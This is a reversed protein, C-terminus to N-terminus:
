EEEKAAERISNLIFLFNRPATIKGHLNVQSLTKLEQGTVDHRALMQRNSVFGHWVRDRSKAPSTKRRTDVSPKAACHSLEFLPEREMELADAIRGLLSLSPRCRDLELCAIRTAKVGVKAALERQSLQLAQRRQRLMQGLTQRAKKEDQAFMM